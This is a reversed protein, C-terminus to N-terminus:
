EFECFKIKIKKKGKEERGAIGMAMGCQSRMEVDNNSTTTTTPLRFSSINNEKPRSPLFNISSHLQNARLFVIFSLSHEGSCSVRKKKKPATEGKTKTIIVGWFLFVFVFCISFTLSFLIDLRALFVLLFTITRRCRKQSDDNQRKLV